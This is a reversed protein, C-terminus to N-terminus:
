IEITSTCEQLYILLEANEDTADNTQMLRFMADIREPARFTIQM